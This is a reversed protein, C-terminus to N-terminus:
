SSELYHAAAETPVPRSKMLATGLRTVAMAAPSKSTQERAMGRASTSSIQVSVAPVASRITRTGQRSRRGSAM